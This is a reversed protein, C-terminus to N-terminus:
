FSSPGPMAAVLGQGQSNKVPPAGPRCNFALAGPGGQVGGAMVVQLGPSM